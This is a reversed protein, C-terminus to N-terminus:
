HLQHHLRHRRRDDGDGARNQGDSPSGVIEIKESLRTPSLYTEHLHELDSESLSGIQKLTENIKQNLSPKYGTAYAYGSKM